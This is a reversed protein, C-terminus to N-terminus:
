SVIQTIFSSRDEILARILQVQKKSKLYAQSCYLSRLVYLHGFFMRLTWLAASLKELLFFLTSKGLSFSLSLLSEEQLFAPTRRILLELPDGPSHITEILAKKKKNQATRADLLSFFLYTRRIRM